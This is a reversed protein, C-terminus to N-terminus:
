LSDNSYMSKEGGGGVGGLFVQLSRSFTVCFTKFRFIQDFIQFNIGPRHCVTLLLKADISVFQELSSFFNIVQRVQILM